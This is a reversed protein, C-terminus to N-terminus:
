NDHNCYYVTIYLKVMYNLSYDLNFSVLASQWNSVPFVFHKKTLEINQCCM